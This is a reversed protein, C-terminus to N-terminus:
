IGTLDGVPCGHDGTKEAYQQHYGEAVYFRGIPEVRTVIPRPFRSQERAIARRVAAGQEASFIFVESRYQDGEDPGQRDRTTPDHIQFFARLLHEYRVVAPDFEVLVTEAHGTGHGCVAEYTPADTHGGTYGVATAVVGRIRRFADETGWFCGAAFAALEHGAAPALPTGDGVGGPRTGVSRRGEADAVGSSASGAASGGTASNAGADPTTGRCAGALVVLLLMPAAPVIRTPLPM